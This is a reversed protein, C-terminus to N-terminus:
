GFVGKKCARRIWNSDINHSMYTGVSRGTIEYPPVETHPGYLAPHSSSLKYYHNFIPRICPSAGVGVSDSSKTAMSILPCYSKSAHAVNSAVPVLDSTTKLCSPIPYFTFTRILMSWVLRFFRSTIKRNVHRPFLHAKRPNGWIAKWTPRGTTLWSM